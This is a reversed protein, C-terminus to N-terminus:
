PLPTLEKISMQVSKTSDRLGIAQLDPKAFLTFLGMRLASAPSLGTRHWRGGKTMGRTVDILVREGRLTAIFDFPVFRRAATVDDYVDTFGLMPLRKQLALKEAQAAIQPNSRGRHSDTRNRVYERVHELNKNVYRRHRATQSKRICERSCYRQNWRINKAFGKRCFSCNATGYKPVQM